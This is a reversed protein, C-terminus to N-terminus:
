WHGPAVPAFDRVFCQALEHFVALCFRIIGPPVYIIGNEVVVVGRYKLVYFERGHFPLDLIKSEIERGFLNGSKKKRVNGIGVGYEGSCTRCTYSGPHQHSIECGVIGCHHIRGPHRASVFECRLLYLFEMRHVLIQIVSHLYPPEIFAQEESEAVVPRKCGHHGQIM